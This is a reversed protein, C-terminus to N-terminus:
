ENQNIWSKVHMDYKYLLFMISSITINALSKKHQTVYKVHVAFPMTSKIPM